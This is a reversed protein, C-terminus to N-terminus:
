KKKSSFTAKKPLSNELNKKIESIRKIIVSLRKQDFSKNKTFTQLNLTLANISQLISNIEAFMEEESATKIATGLKGSVNLLHHRTEVIQKTTITTRNRGMLNNIDVTTEACLNWARLVGSKKAIGM